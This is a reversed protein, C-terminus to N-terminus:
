AVSRRSGANFRAERGSPQQGFLSPHGTVATWALRKLLCRAHCVLLSDLLVKIVRVCMLSPAQHKGVEATDACRAILCSMCMEFSCQLSPAQVGPPQSHCATLATKRVENAVAASRTGRRSLRKVLARRSGFMPRSPPMRISLHRWPPRAALRRSSRTGSRASRPRQQMRRHLSPMTGKPGPRPRRRLPRSLPVRWLNIRRQVQQVRQAPVPPRPRRPLLRPRM